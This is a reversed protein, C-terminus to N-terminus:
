FGFYSLDAEEYIEFILILHTLDFLLYSFILTSILLELAISLSSKRTLGKGRGMEM